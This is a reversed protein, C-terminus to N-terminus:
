LEKSRPQTGSPEPHRTTRAFLVVVAVPLSDKPRNVAPELLLPVQVSAAATTSAPALTSPGDGFPPLGCITWTAGSEISLM